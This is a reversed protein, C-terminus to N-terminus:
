TEATAPKPEVGDDPRQRPPAPPAAVHALEARDPREAAHDSRAQGAAGCGILQLRVALSGQSQGLRGVGVLQRGKGELRVASLSGRDLPLVTGVQLALLEALPLSVRGLVADLTTEVGMVVAEMRTQWAVQEPGPEAADAVVPRAGRGKAPVALMMTGCRLGDAGFKLTLSLLRYGTEELVLGLLRPDDLFSGYRFGGAWVSALDTAIQTNLEELTRDIFGTVMAADTRTSRRPPVEAGGIRGTTRIEIVSALVEPSLAILGLGAGPGNLIALLAREPLREPLEALSLRGGGAAAM